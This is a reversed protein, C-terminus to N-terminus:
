RSVVVEGVFGRQKRSEHNELIFVSLLQLCTAKHGEPNHFSLLRSCWGGNMQIAVKPGRAEIRLLKPPAM